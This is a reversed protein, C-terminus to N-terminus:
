KVQRSHCSNKLYELDKKRKLDQAEDLTLMLFESAEFTIEDPYYSFLEYEIGNNLTVFVKPMPDNMGEPMPRPLATIRAKIVKKTGFDLLVNMDSIIQALNTINEDTLKCETDSWNETEWRSRNEKIINLKAIHKNLIDVIDLTRKDVSATREGLNIVEYLADFIKVLDQPPIEDAKITFDKSEKYELTGDNRIATVQMYEDTVIDFIRITNKLPIREIKQSECYRIVAAEFQEHIAALTQLISFKNKLEDFM